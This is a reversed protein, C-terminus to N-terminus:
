AAPRPGEASMYDDLSLGLQSLGEDLFDSVLPMGCVYRPMRERGIDKAAARAENWESLLFDGRGIWILAVLDLQADDNLSDIAAILEDQVADDPDDEIVDLASDDTPNSGSDPDSQPTKEDFERAKMLIFFADDPRISLEPGPSETTRNLDMYIEVETAIRRARERDPM